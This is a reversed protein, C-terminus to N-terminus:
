KGKKGKAPTLLGARMALATFVILVFGAVSIMEIMTSASMGLVVAIACVALFLGIAFVAILGFEYVREQKAEARKGGFLSRIAEVDEETLAFWEGRHHRSSYMAHLEKELSLPNDVQVSAVLSIPYPSGTQMGSIRKQVDTAIGIKYYDQCKLLYVYGSM